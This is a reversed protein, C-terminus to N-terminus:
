SSADDLAYRRVFEAKLRADAEARHRKPQQELWRFAAAYRVQDFPRADLSGILVDLDLVEVGPGALASAAFLVDLWERDWMAGEDSWVVEAEAFVAHLRAAVSGAPLGLALLDALAIGHVMQSDPSWTLGSLWDDPPRILLGGSTIPAVPDEPLVAWGVEIPYGGDLASAEIDIFIHGTM